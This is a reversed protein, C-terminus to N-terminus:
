LPLAGLRELYAIIADVTTEARERTTERVGLGMHDTEIEILYRVAEDRGGGSTLLGLVRLLYADYEDDNEPGSSAIGIPDWVRWGIRRLESLKPAIAM